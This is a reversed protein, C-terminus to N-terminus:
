HRTKKSMSDRGLRTLDASGDPLARSGFYTLSQGGDVKKLREISWLTMPTEGKRRINVFGHRGGAKWRRGRPSAGGPETQLLFGPVGPSYNDEAIVHM